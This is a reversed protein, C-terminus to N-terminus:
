HAVSPSPLAAPLLRPPRFTFAIAVAGLGIAASGIFLLTWRDRFLDEAIRSGDATVFTFVPLPVAPDVLEGRNAAGRPRWGPTGYYLWFAAAVPVLFLAAVALLSRRGRATDPTRDATM